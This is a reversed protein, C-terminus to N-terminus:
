KQKIGGCENLDKECMCINKFEKNRYINKKSFDIVLFDRDKTNKRFLSHFLKKPNQNSSQIYNLDSEILDLQKNSCNYLIAGTLNERATTNLQSWKQVLVWVSFNYKRGNSFIKDLISNKKNNVKLLNTFGLDDLIWLSQVPKKKEDLAENFEDVLMDYITHGTEENWKDFLNSSPIELTEIIKKLKLDGELSGSFIFINKPDYDNKYYEELLLLNALLTSKGCGSKGVIALANRVDPIEKKKIVFKDSIDKFKYIKPM